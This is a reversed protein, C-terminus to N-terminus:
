DSFMYAGAELDSIAIVVQGGIEQNALYVPHCMMISCGSVTINAVPFPMNCCNEVMMGPVYQRFGQHKPYCKWCTDLASHITGNADEVVFFRVMAGGVDYQYWTANESVLPRSVAAHTTNYAHVMSLENYRLFTLKQKALDSKKIILQDGIVKSALYMPSCGDGSCGQETIETIPFSMNCCNEIMGSGSQRYGLHANFCMWCEDFATHVVDSADKVVFFRVMSGSVNYEYWTATQSISALPVAVTTMNVDTVHGAAAPGEKQGPENSSLAVLGAIVVVAVVVIALIAKLGVKNGPAKGENGAKPGGNEQAKDAM